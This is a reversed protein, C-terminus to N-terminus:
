MLTARQGIGGAEPPVPMEGTRGDVFASYIRSLRAVEEKAVSPRADKLAARLHVDTIEHKVPEHTVAKKSGTDADGRGSQTASLMRQIRRQLEMEEAQSKVGQEAKGKGKRGGGGFRVFEVKQEGSADGSKEALSAHAGIDAHVLALHANYVLAQLDAGSFGETAEALWTFDVFSHVPVKLAHAQLIEKREAASPMNCLLAKDLRGPRLLASDILDPRSTAALVYVGDLGEAGDMLTLLQNVVRDTVGTSDHGRKPAISDFEDFFLVCPKAASAREFIDRVSKESAGIYKNLLEPGKVSIFNLGCERAVASALMTKGCGPYGYLLLGSRLRLPSQKFIAAYKTPWELTERLVRRTETLGGIDSWAVTSTQLPVDRLARPVFGDQAEAFDRMSLIATDPANSDAAARAAAVHVARGVLDRLDTASYGETQTAIALANPAQADDLSLSQASALRQNLAQDLIMKRAEKEPARLAVTKKFVHAAGLAPHLSTDGQATCVLLVGSIPKRVFVSLFAETAHRTQFSDAHEAEAGLIVDLNDLILVGPARWAVADRWAVFLERLSRAPREKYRALDVYRVYTHVGDDHQMGRAVARAVETKGSGSRGTILLAPLGSSRGSRMLMFAARCYDASAKLVADVGALSHTPNKIARQILEPPTELSLSGPLVSLLVRDWENPIGDSGASAAGGVIVVQGEPVEALPLIPMTRQEDKEVGAKGEGSSSARGLDLVKPESVPASGPTDEPDPPARLVRVLADYSGQPLSALLSPSVCAVPEEGAHPLRSTLTSPLVRFVTSLVPSPKNSATDSSLKSSSAVVTESGKAKDSSRTLKAHAKPAISLETDTTLLLAKASPPDLATARLRVRTTGHVWVDLEQGLSAVRVQSLLTSEVHEAHLELIEWDDATLPETTVMRAHPLDYALGVEVVDGQSLGLGSAFQPDIEVTETDGTGGSSSGSFRAVSSAAMMGTWGVYIDKKPTQGVKSLVVAVHQPRINRELLPGYLSIPLNVLSSRTPVFHIRAHRPM